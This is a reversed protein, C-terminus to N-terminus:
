STSSQSDGGLEALDARLQSVLEQLGEREAIDLATRFDSLAVDKSGVGQELLALRRITWVQSKIDDVERFAEIADNYARIAADSDGGQHLAGALNARASALLSPDGLTEAIEIARRANAEAQDQEEWLWHAYSLTAYVAGIEKALGHELAVDLAQELHSRAARAVPETPGPAPEPRLAILFAIERHAAVETEHDESEEALQLATELSTMVAEDGAGEEREAWGKDLYAAALPKGLGARQCLDICRDFAERAEQFRGRANAIRGTLHLSRATLEPEHEETIMQRVQELSALASDQEGRLDHILALLWHCRARWGASLPAHLLHHVEEEARETYGWSVLLEVASTMQPVASEMEGCEFRHYAEELMLAVDDFKSPHEPRLRAYHAAALTHAKRLETETMKGVVFERVFAAILYRQTSPDFQVLSLDILPGLAEESWHGPDDIPRGPPLRFVCLQGLLSSAEPDLGAVVEKLLPAFDPVITYRELLEEPDWHRTAILRGFMKLLAPNGEFHRTIREVATRTLNSVGVQELLDDADDISLGLLERELSVGTPIQEPGIDWPRARSIVLLKSNHAASLVRLLIRRIEDNGLRLNRDLWHDFDDLVILYRGQLSRVLIDIKADLAVRPDRWPLSHTGDGKRRLMEDLRALFVDTTTESARCDIWAMEDFEGMLDGIARAVAVTKGMGRLGHLVMLRRERDELFARVEALTQQRDIVVGPAPLASPKIRGQGAAESVSEPIPTRAFEFATQACKHVFRYADDSGTLPKVISTHSGRVTLRRGSGLGLGSSLKDVWLDSSGEVAWVPLTIRDRRWEGEVMHIRDQFTQNTERVLRGHAKLARTDVTLWSLFGPVRLSGAQPTAMLIMGAVKGLADLQNTNILERVAAKILLGGMSHGVLLVHPYETERVLGALTAAEDDFPVSKWLKLRGALTRYSYLAVDCSALESFILEPLQGWTSYRGGGLGHVFLLLDDNHRARSRRHLVLAEEALQKWDAPRHFTDEIVERL